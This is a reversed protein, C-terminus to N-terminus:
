GLTNVLGQFLHVTVIVDCTKGFSHLLLALSERPSSHAVFDLFEVRLYFLIFVFYPHEATSCGYKKIAM